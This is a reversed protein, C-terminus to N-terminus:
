CQIYVCVPRPLVLWIPALGVGDCGTIRSDTCHLKVFTFLLSYMTKSLIETLESVLSHLLTKMTSEVSSFSQIFICMLQMAINIHMEVTQGLTCYSATRRWGSLGDNFGNIFLLWGTHLVCFFVM